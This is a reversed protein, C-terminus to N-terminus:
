IICLLWLAGFTTALIGTFIVAMAMAAVPHRYECWYVASKWVATLRDITNM